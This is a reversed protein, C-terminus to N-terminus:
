APAIMLVLGLLPIRILVAYTLTRRANGPSPAVPAPPQELAPM